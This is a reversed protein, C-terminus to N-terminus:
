LVPAVPKLKKNVLAQLARAVQERLETQANPLAVLQTMADLHAEAVRGDFLGSAGVAEIYGQLSAAAQRLLRDELQGALSVIEKAAGHLVRLAARGIQTDGNLAARASQLQRSAAAKLSTTAATEAVVREEDVFRRLPGEYQSDLKRRRCPGRYRTVFTRRRNLVSDLRRALVDTNFPKIAYEDVGARRAIEVDQPSSRETVLIIATDPALVTKSHRVMLTFDLGNIGPLDWDCLIVQPTYRRFLEMADEVSVANEIHYGGLARLTEGTLARQFAKEDIVAFTTRKIKHSSM